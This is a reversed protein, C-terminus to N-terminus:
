AVGKITGTCCKSYVRHDQPKKICKNLPLVGILFWCVGCFGM